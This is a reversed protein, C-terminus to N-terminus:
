HMAAARVAEVFLKTIPNPTRHKLVVLGVPPADIDLDVPLAKIPLRHAAARVVSSPLFTLFRGTQVMSVQIPLSACTITATPLPLNRRAFAAAFLPWVLARSSDPMVWRQSVLDALQLRRKRAFPHSPGAVIMIPDHFLVEKDVDPEPAIDIRGLMLDIKRERLARMLDSTVAHDVDFQMRPYRGTLRDLVEPLLAYLVIDSTGIRLRGAEPDALWELEQAAQELEDFLVRTRRLLAEGYRTLAVGQATRDFLRVRLTSEMEAITKSIAPQTLALDASAKAMSGRHAVASFTHLERLKLQRGLRRTDM